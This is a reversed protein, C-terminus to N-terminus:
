ISKVWIRYVVKSLVDWKATYVRASYLLEPRQLVDRRDLGTLCAIRRAVALIPLFAAPHRRELLLRVSRNSIGFLAGLNNRVCGKISKTLDGEQKAKNVISTDTIRYKLLRTSLNAIKGVSALRFWLDFDEVPKPYRYNGASLVMQRRMMVAPHALPSNFVMRALVDCYDLPYDFKQQISQGQSDILEIQGGIAALHYDSQLAEVQLAFREPFCIDDGDMRALFESEAEEVMRALCEHLPLPQNTIIKGAIKCPIWRQAEEISGDTSGNDWVCVYFDRFTQAQLSALAERLYPMADKVPLLVTIVASM